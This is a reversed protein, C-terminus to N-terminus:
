VDDGEMYKLLKEAWVPMKNAKVWRRVQRDTIGIKRATACQGGFRVLYEKVSM